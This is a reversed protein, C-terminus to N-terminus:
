LKDSKEPVEKEAAPDRHLRLGPSHGANQLFSNEQGELVGSEGIDPERSTTSPCDNFYGELISRVDIRKAM